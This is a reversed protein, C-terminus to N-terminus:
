MYTTITKKVHKQFKTTIRLRLLSVDALFFCLLVVRVMVKGSTFLSLYGRCRSRAGTRHRQAHCLCDSALEHGAGSETGQTSDSPRSVDHIKERRDSREICARNRSAETDKWFEVINAGRKACGIRTCHEHQRIRRRRFREIRGVIEADHQKKRSLQEEVMRWRRNCQDKTGCLMHALKQSRKRLMKLPGSRRELMLYKLRTKRQVRAPPRWWCSQEVVRVQARM